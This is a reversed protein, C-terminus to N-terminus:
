KDKKVLFYINKEREEKFKEMRPLFHQMLARFNKFGYNQPNFDSYKRNMNMRIQAYEARTKEEILQEIINILVKLDNKDLTNQDKNKDKDLYFFENFANVYSKISQKLGIGIVQKKNERLKQILSTYDSDSSVIIFIDIDKEYFFSLIETILYMDSSNKQARFNFQQMAIISHDGVKKKWNQVSEKTWDAYIRKIVLEGYNSAINFIDDAYKEPINEADIFVAVSKNEM